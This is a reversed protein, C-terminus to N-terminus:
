PMDPWHRNNKVWNAQAPIVALNSEVHLGCVLKSRLPVIHDVHWEFGTTRTRRQALDYAEEIFFANAWAPTAQLKAARRRAVTANAAARNEELWARNTAAVQEPHAKKWARNIANVQERHEDVWRNQSAEVREPNEAKWTKNRLAEQEPHEVTWEKRRANAYERNEAHWVASKAKVCEKCRCEIRGSTRVYFGEPPKDAGCTTCTRM